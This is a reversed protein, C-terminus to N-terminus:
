VDIAVLDGACVMVATGSPNDVLQNCVPKPGLGAGVDGKGWNQKYDQPHQYGCNSCVFVIM